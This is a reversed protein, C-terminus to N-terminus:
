WAYHAFAKNAEAMKHMNEKKKVAEGKNNYADILEQALKEEMPKGKKNRAAEVIWRLALAIRRHEKVEMPVQYTAGGIRRPRVELIPGANKIAGEFVELPDKKTKEKIIEFADYVIRRALSKKGKRMVYNILKTVLSSGYKPDPELERRKIKKAKKGM